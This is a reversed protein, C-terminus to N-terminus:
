VMNLPISPFLQFLNCALRLKLFFSLLVRKLSVELYMERFMVASVMKKEKKPFVFNANYNIMGHACIM